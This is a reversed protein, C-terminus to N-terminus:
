NWGKVKFSNRHIECKGLKRLVEVHNKTGYGKHKAFGYEPYKKDYIVMIRDRTVKAVISAAAISFCKKDGGKIGTQDYFNEPLRFGDILLHDPKIQLSGVAMRMAKLSAQFINIEDIEKEDVIGTEVAVAQEIIETFLTERKKSSLKKSDNIGAIFIDHPFVVAAAVVPGALPGRGAEDIGAIYKKGMNWFKREYSLMKFIRDREQQYKINISEDSKM